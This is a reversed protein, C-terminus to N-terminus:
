EGGEGKVQFTAISHVTVIGSRAGVYLSEGDPAFKVATAPSALTMAMVM